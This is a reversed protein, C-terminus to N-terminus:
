RWWHCKVRLFPLFLHHALIPMGWWACGLQLPELLAAAVSILSTSPHKCWFAVDIVYMGHIICSLLLKHIMHLHQRQIWTVHGWSSIFTVWNRSRVVAIPLNATAAMQKELGGFLCPSPDDLWFNILLPCKHDRGEGFLSCHHWYDCWDSVPTSIIQM